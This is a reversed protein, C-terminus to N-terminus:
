EDPIGRVEPIFHFICGSNERRTRSLFPCIGGEAPYVYLIVVTFRIIPTLWASVIRVSMCSFCNSVETTVIVVISWGMALFSLMVLLV